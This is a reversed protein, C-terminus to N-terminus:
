QTLQPLADLKEAMSNIAKYNLVVSEDNRNQRKPTHCITTQFFNVTMEFSCVAKMNLTSFTIKDQLHLSCTGGIHQDVDAPTRVRRRTGYTVVM